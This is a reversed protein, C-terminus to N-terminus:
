SQLRTRTLRYFAEFQKLLETAKANMDRVRQRTV